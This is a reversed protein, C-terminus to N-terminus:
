FDHKKLLNDLERICQINIELLSIDRECISKVAKKFDSKLFPYKKNTKDLAEIFMIISGWVYDHLKKGKNTVEYEEQTYFELSTKGFTYYLISNAPGKRNKGWSLTRTDTKKNFIMEMHADFMHLITNRGEFDGDKTVHGIVILVAENEATWKRLRQIIKFGSTEASMEPYDEKMIVQLSDIIVIKPAVENLRDIFSELNPCTESDAIYANKNDILYRKMQSKVASASMERSYFASKHSMLLNQLVISFTTKGAGSTGTLFIASGEVFGKDNSLFDDLNKNGTKITTDEKTEISGYNKM